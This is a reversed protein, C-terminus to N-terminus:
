VMKSILYYGVLHYKFDYCATAPDSIIRKRGDQRTPHQEGPFKQYWEGTLSNQRLFHFDYNRDDEDCNMVAIKWANPSTVKEDISSERISMGIHQVDMSVYHVLEVDSYPEMSKKHSLIGAIVGPLLRRDVQISLAFAYCNAGDVFMWRNCEEHFTPPPIIVSKSTITTM